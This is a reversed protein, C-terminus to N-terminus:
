KENPPLWKLRRFAWETLWLSFYTAFWAFITDSLFHGGATMRVVALLTAMALSALLWRRRTAPAALWGFAMVFAATAVHGSVFSCNKPCQDSVVFAPTFALPGGFETVTAPRARHWGDKLTADVLLVPGLLAAALLFGFTTRRAHLWGLRKIGGLLLGGLLIVLLAQGVRPTGRYILEFLPWNGGSFAWRGDDYFARSAALDIEPFAVFLVALLAFVVGALRLEIVRSTM